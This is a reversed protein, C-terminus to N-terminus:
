SNQINRHVIKKIGRKIFSLVRRISLVIVRGGVPSTWIAVYVRYWFDTSKITKDNRKITTLIGLIQDDRVPENEYSNDGVIIYDNDRVKKVRHLVYVGNDRKFLVADKVKYRGQHSEIVALDRGPRIIPMMSIGSVTFVYYGNQNIENEITTM